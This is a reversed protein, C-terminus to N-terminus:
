FITSQNILATKINKVAADFYSQKLEIGIANRKMKVAQYAESGVGMFPTLVTDGANTWLAIFGSEIRKYKKKELFELYENM